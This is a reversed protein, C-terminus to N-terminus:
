IKDMTRTGFEQRKFLQLPVEDNRVTQAEAVANAVYGIESAAHDALRPLCSSVQSVKMDSVSFTRTEGDHQVLLKAEMLRENLVHAHIFFSASVGHEKCRKLFSYVRGVASLELNVSVTRKRYRSQVICEVM